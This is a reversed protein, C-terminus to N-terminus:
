TQLNRSLFPITSKRYRETNCKISSLGSMDRLQRRCRSAKSPPLLHRHRVSHLLKLGFGQLLTDRRCRLSSLGCVDLASDYSTYNRGLIIRLARKQVFEIKDTQTETLSTHWFPCAYALVPRIYCSYVTVM